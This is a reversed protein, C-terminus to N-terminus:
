ESRARAHIFPSKPFQWPTDNRRRLQRNARRNLGVSTPCSSRGTGAPAAFKIKKRNNRLLLGAPSTPRSWAAPGLGPLVGYLIQAAKQPVGITGTNHTERGYHYYNNCHAASGFPYFWRALQSLVASFGEPVLLFRGLGSQVLWGSLVSHIRPAYVVGWLWPPARWTAKTLM